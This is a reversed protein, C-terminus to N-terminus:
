EFSAPQIQGIDLQALHFANASGAKLLFLLPPPDLELATRSPIIPLFMVDQDQNINIIYYSHIEKM